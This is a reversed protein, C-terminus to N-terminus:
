FSLAGRTTRIQNIVKEDACRPCIYRGRCNGFRRGQRQRAQAYDTQNERAPHATLGNNNRRSLRQYKELAQKTKLAFGTPWRAIPMPFYLIANVPALRCFHGSVMVTECGGGHESWAALLRVTRPTNKSSTNPANKM